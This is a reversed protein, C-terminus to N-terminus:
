EELELSNKIEIVTPPRKRDQKGNQKYDSNSRLKDELYDRFLNDEKTMPHVIYEPKDSKQIINNNNNVRKIIPM